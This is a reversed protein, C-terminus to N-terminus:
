RNLSRLPQSRGLADISNAPQPDVREGDSREAVGLVGGHWERLDRRSSGRQASQELTAPDRVVVVEAYRQGGALAGAAFNSVTAFHIPQGNQFLVGSGGGGGLLFGGQGIAPFVIVGASSDILPGLTPDKAEM